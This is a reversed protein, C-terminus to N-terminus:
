RLRLGHRQTTSCIIHYTPLPYTHLISHITASRLERTFAMALPKLNKLARSM